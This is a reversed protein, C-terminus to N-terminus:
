RGVSGGTEFNALAVIASIAETRGAGEAATLRASSSEQVALVRDHAEELIATVDAWGKEDVHLPMWCLTTDDRRDLTGAELAAVARDMLTQLSATSVGSRVSRPVRRWHPAGIFAHPAAKTSPEPRKENM